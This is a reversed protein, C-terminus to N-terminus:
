ATSADPVPAPPLGLPGHGHGLRPAIAIARTVYAKAARVADALADGAALRAAIVASLTCGTGHTHASRIRRGSFVTLTHGDFLVDVADGVLHGGKVLAARAGMEVLKKAARRSEDVNTVSLGTLLAAEPANATAVDALPLLVDRLISVGDANLLPAGSTSAIITDLVVRQLRHRIVAEAVVAATAGTALMGIKTADVTFDALVADIQASVIDAPLPLVRSVEISNQATVATLATAGHVGCAAFTKVDAQIGAGGGSDSGAITLVTRM